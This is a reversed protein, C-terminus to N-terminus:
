YLIGVLVYKINSRRFQFADNTKVNDGKTHFWPGKIDTGMEVIRHTLAIQTTNQYFVAIVIDGIIINTDDKVEVFIGTSGYDLLPLMSDTDSFHSLVYSGNLTLSSDTQHIMDISIRDPLQKDTHIYNELWPYPSQPPKSKQYTIGFSYFMLAVMSFLVVFGLVFYPNFEKEKEDAMKKMETRKRRLIDQKRLNAM